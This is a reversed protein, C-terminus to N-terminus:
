RPIMSLEWDIQPEGSTIITKGADLDIGHSTGFEKKGTKHGYKDYVDFMGTILIIM